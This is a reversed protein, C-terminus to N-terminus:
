AAGTSARAARGEVACSSPPSSRHEERGRSPRALWQSRIPPLRQSSPPLHRPAEPPLGQHSTLLAKKHQQVTSTCEQKKINQTLCLGTDHSLPRVHTNRDAMAEKQQQKTCQGHTPHSSKSVPVIITPCNELPTNERNSRKRELRWSGNWCSCCAFADLGPLLEQSMLRHPFYNHPPPRRLLAGLM